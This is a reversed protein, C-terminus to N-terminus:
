GEMGNIGYSLLAVQGDLKDRGRGDSRETEVTSEPETTEERRREGVLEGDKRKGSLGGNKEDKWRSENRQGETDM